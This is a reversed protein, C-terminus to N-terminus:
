RKESRIRKEADAVGKRELELIRRKADRRMNAIPHTKGQPDRYYEKEKIAALDQLCLRYEHLAASPDGSRELAAGLRFHGLPNKPDLALADRLLKLESTLDGRRQEIYAALYYFTTDGPDNQIAKNADEKAAVLDGLALLASAAEGHWRAAHPNRQLEKRAEELLAHADTAPVRPERERRILKELAPTPEPEESVGRKLRDIRKKAKRRLGEFGYYARGRPDYYVDRKAYKLKDLCLKYEQLAGAQDGQKQLVVGLEYHGVPNNPDLELARRLSELQKLGNDKHEAISALVYYYQPAEADNRIAANIESESSAWDGLLAYALSAQNHWYAAHPNRRLQERAEKLISRPDLYQVEAKGGQDGDHQSISFGVLFFFCVLPLLGRM